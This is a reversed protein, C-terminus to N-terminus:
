SGVNELILATLAAIRDDVYKKTDAIYTLTVDGCESWIRNVGPLMTLEEATLTHEVPRYLPYVMQVPTGAAAQEALWSAWEAATSAVGSGPRFLAFGSTGNLADAGLNTNGSRIVAWPFHSCWGHSTNMPASPIPTSFYPNTGTQNWAETGDFQKYAHTVTLRGATVDLTGAYVTGAGAPLTLELKTGGYPEAATPADAIEVQLGAVAEGISTVDTSSTTYLAFGIWQTEAPAQFLLSTASANNVTYLVPSRYANTAVPFESTAIIRFATSSHTPCSVAYTVGGPLKVWAAKYGVGAM